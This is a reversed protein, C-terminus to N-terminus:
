NKKEIESILDQIINDKNFDKNYENNEEYFALKEKSKKEYLNFKMIKIDKQNLEITKRRKMSIEEFTESHNNSNIKSFTKLNEVFLNNNFNFSNHDKKIEDFVLDVFNNISKLNFHQLDVINIREKIAYILEENTFSLNEIVVKMQLISLIQNLLKENYLNNQISIWSKPSKSHKLNIKKIKIKDDQAQLNKKM